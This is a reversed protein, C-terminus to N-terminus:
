PVRAAFLQHGLLAMPHDQDPLTLVAGVGASALAERWRDRSPLAGGGPDLRADGAAHPLLARSILFETHEHTPEDLLLWGGPALLGVLRRAAADPDASAALVEAGIVVDFSRPRFGPGSPGAHALRIRAFRGLRARAADLLLESGEACVYDVAPGPRRMAALAEAIVETRVGTGAGLELVRLPGFGPHAVAIEQMATALATTLYRGTATRRDIADAIRMSGRPFLLTTAQQKGALLAPLQEASRRLYDIVTASGLHGTWSEATLKWDQVVDATTVTPGAHFTDGHRAILDNEALAELWREALRRHEQAVGAAALVEAVTHGRAPDNLVGGSRLAVLMSSLVASRLRHTFMRAQEGTVGIVQKWSAAAAADIVERLARDAAEASSSPERVHAVVAGLAEVAAYVDQQRPEPGIHLVRRLEGLGPVPRRILEWLLRSPLSLRTTRSGALDALIDAPQQGPDPCVVTGGTLLTALALEVALGSM